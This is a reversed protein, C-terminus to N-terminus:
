GYLGRGVQPFEMQQTARAVPGEQLLAIQQQQRILRSLCNFIEPFHFGQCAIGLIEKVILIIDAPRDLRFVAGNASGVGM